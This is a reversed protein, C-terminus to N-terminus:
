YKKLKIGAFIILVGAISIILPPIGGTKPLAGAPIIDDIIDELKSKDPQIPEEQPQVTDNEPKSEPLVAPGAPINEDNVDINNPNNNNNNNNNESDSGSGSENNQATFIFKVSLAKRQLENGIDNPFHMSFNLKEEGGPVVSGLAVNSLGKLPGSYYSHSGKNNEVSINLSQYLAEDGNEKESSVYISFRSDGTNNVTVVSSETDGPAMNQMSFIPSDPTISLGLNDGVIELSAAFVSNTDALVMFSIIGIVLIFVGMTTVVTKKYM